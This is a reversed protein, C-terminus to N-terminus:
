RSRHGAREVTPTTYPMHSMAEALVAVNLPCLRVSHSVHPDADLGPLLPQSRRTCFRRVSVRALKMPPTDRQLGRVIEVGNSTWHAVGPTMQDASISREEARKCGIGGHGQGPPPYPWVHVDAPSVLCGRVKEVEEQGSRDLAEKFEAALAVDVASSTSEHDKCMQALHDFAPGLESHRHARDGRPGVAGGDRQPQPQPPPVGENTPEM